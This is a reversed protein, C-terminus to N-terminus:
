VVDAFYRDVRKYWAYAAALSVFALIAAFGFPKWDPWQGLVLVRRFGDLIPSLPNLYPYAKQLFAHGYLLGKEAHGQVTTIGTLRSLPYAVPTAYLLIQLILPMGYRTDRAYVTIGAVLLSAAATLAVLVVLIMPYAVWTLRPHFGYATLIALLIASSVAFDVMSSLVAGLPFVERPMYTKRIMGYNLIISNTASGISSSFLQWPVLATYSFVAYPLGQSGLKAIRGFLVSFVLMLVLPQLIAWFAGLVAQKYRVRIDREVLTFLVERSRWMEKIRDLLHLQYYQRPPPQVELDETMRPRVRYQVTSGELEEALPDFDQAVNRSRRLAKDLPTRGMFTEHTELDSDELLPSATEPRASSGEADDM